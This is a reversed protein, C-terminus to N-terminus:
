TTTCGLREEVTKLVDHAILEADRNADIMVCTAPEDAVLAKFGERVNRHFDGGFKDFRSQYGEGRARARELGKDHDIDLVFTLDPRFGGLTMEHLRDLRSWGWGRVCGQYIFSSHVFRDSIVWTGGDLAPQILKEMHDARAAQFLLVEAGVGWRGPEGEVLLRRIEEAGPSGGPERTTVLKIGRDTLSKALLKVQTSKGSGEGGEFSIFKGRM